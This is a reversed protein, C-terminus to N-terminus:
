TPNKNLVALRDRYFRTLCPIAADGSCTRNRLSVWARQSQLLKQKDAPQYAYHMKTQYIEAVQRDLRAVGADACIAHEIVSAAKRCDFSPVPARWDPRIVDRLASLPIIVEQPGAAYSAVQYPPFYIHLRNPLWVFHKFNDALPGAGGAITETDSAADPGSGITRNLTAIALQSIRAIGRSGDVIEPLFIQAGDPLLFDLTAYDSSPHAGGAYASETFVVAFMQGDNREIRYTVEMTYASESPQKDVASQRFEDIAQRAWALVASDISGNGTQPYQVSVDIDRTRIVISKKAVPLGDANASVAFPLWFALVLVVWWHRAM